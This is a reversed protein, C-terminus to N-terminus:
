RPTATAATSSTRSASVLFSQRRYGGPESIPSESRSDEVTVRRARHGVFVASSVFHRATVNRVWGDEVHDLRIAIWAHEEDLPYKADHASDLILDEVGINQLAPNSQVVALTGGGYKKELATTIPADVEIENASSNVATITRDWVLDHSGVAWDLRANAFTGPLGTMGLSKIWDATSPRRLVVHQGVSLGATSGLKFTHAGVPADDAIAVPTDIGPDAEGGAEILTRRGIGEAVLSTGGAGSGSGRLVVGSARLHLQGNVHFSGARLLVAGRFGDPQLPLAAVHDIANQLLITDDKGTPRVAIVAKVAPVPKGAGYGAVSFDIPVPSQAAQWAIAPATGLLLLALLTSAPKIMIMM